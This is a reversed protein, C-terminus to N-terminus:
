NVVKSTSRRLKRFAGEVESQVLRTGASEREHLIGFTFERRATARALRTLPPTALLRDVATLLALYRDSDLAAILATRADAERGAFYRTLRAQVPGVVLEDPLGQVAHTFRAHLVELDRDDGLVGALWKLEETLERTASRDIIKGYAQLASRMRRTAVRMQHVADPADQRPPTRRRGARADSVRVEDRSDGDAPLTLHWGADDGGRRRRLTVGAQALRLDDTDFYVAELTQEEPGVPSQVGTLEALGPLEVGDGIEYKRETEGVTATM